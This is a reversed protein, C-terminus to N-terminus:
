WSFSLVETKTSKLWIALMFRRTRLFSGMHRQESRETTTGASKQRWHEACACVMSERLEACCGCPCVDATLLAICCEPM